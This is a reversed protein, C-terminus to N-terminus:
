HLNYCRYQSHCDSRASASAYRIKLASCSIQCISKSYNFVCAVSPRCTPSRVAHPVNSWHRLPIILHPDTFRWRTASHSGARPSLISAKNTELLNSLHLFRGIKVNIWILYGENQVLKAFFKRYKAAKEFTIVNSCLPGNDKIAM